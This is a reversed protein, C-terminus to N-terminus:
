AEFASRVNENLPVCAKLVSLSSLVLTENRGPEQEGEPLHKGGHFLNNRVRRVYVLLRPLTKMGEGLESDAFGLVGDVLVQKKPPRALLYEVASGLETSVAPDFRADHDKGFKDWNPIVRDADGRRYGAAKLAYELRSFISFFDCAIRPEM